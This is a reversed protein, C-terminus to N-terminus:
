ANFANDAVSLNLNNLTPNRLIFQAIERYAEVSLEYMPFAINKWWACCMFCLPFICFAGSVLTCVICCQNGPKTKAGVITINAQQMPANIDPPVVNMMGPQVMGNYDMVGPQLMGNQAFNQNSMQDMMGMQMFDSQPQMQIQMGLPNTPILSSQTRFAMENGAFTYIGNMLTPPLTNSTIMDLTAEFSIGGGGGRSSYHHHHGFGHHGFGHHRGHSHGHSRGGGRGGRGM